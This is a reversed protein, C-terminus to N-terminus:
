RWGIPPFYGTGDPDRLNDEVSRQLYWGARRQVRSALEAVIQPTRGSPPSSIAFGKNVTSAQATYYQWVSDVLPQGAAWAILDQSHPLEALPTRGSM